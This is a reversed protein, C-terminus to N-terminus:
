ANKLLVWDENEMQCDNLKWGKINAGVLRGNSARVFEEIKSDQIMWRVPLHKELLPHVKAIQRDTHLGVNICKLNPVIFPLEAIDAETFYMGNTYIFINKNRPIRLLVNYLLQKDMFPEGGTICVNEYPMFDIESFEKQVFQRNVSEIENCCYSCSLNCKLFLILRLTDKKM